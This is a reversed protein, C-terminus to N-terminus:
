VPRMRELNNPLGTSVHKLLVMTANRFDQGPRRGRGTEVREREDRRHRRDEEAATKNADPKVSTSRSDRKETRSSLDPMTPARETEQGVGNRMEEKADYTRHNDQRRHGLERAPSAEWGPGTDAVVSLSDVATDWDPIGSISTGTPVNGDRHRIGDGVSGPGEKHPRNAKVVVRIISVWWGGLCM